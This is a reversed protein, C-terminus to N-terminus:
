VYINMPLHIITPKHKVTYTLRMRNLSFDGTKHHICGQWWDDFNTSLPSLETKKYRRDNLWFRKRWDHLLSTPLIWQFPLYGLSTTNLRQWWVSSIQLLSQRSVTGNSASRPDDPQHGDCHCIPWDPFWPTPRHVTQNTCRDCIHSQSSDKIDLWLLCPLYPM